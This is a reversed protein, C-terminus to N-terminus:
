SNKQTKFDHASIEASNLNRIERGDDIIIAGQEDVGLVTGRFSKKGSIIQIEEGIYAM